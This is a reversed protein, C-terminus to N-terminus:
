RAQVDPSDHSELPPQWSLASAVVTGPAQAEARPPAPEAPLAERTRAAAEPFAVALEAHGVSGVRPLAQPSM